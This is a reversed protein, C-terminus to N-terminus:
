CEHERAQKEKWEIMKEARGMFSFYWSPQKHHIRCKADWSGHQRAHVWYDGDTDGGFKPKSISMCDLMFRHTFQVSAKHLPVYWSM